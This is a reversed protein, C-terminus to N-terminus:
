ITPYHKVRWALLGYKVDFVNKYGKKLMESVAFPSRSGSLCYVFVKQGKDPIITEIKTSIDQLPINISNEIKGKAVEEPSRVDIIVVKEKDDLAKKVEDVTVQPLGPDPTDFM